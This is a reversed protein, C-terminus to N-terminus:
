WFLEGGSDVGGLRELEVAAAQDADHATKFVQGDLIRHFQPDGGVGLSKVAIAASYGGDGPIVASVAEFQLFERRAM